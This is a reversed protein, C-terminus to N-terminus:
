KTHVLYLLVESPKTVKPPTEGQRTATTLRDSLSVSHLLKLTGYHCFHTLLILILQLRVTLLCKTKEISHKGHM